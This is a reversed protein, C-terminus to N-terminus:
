GPGTVIPAKYVDKPNAYGHFTQGDDIYEILLNSEGYPHDSNTAIHVITGYSYPDDTKTVAGKTVWVRRKNKTAVRDGVGLSPKIAQYSGGFPLGLPVMIFGKLIDRRKM